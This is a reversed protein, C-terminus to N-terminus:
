RTLNGFNTRFKLVNEKIESNKVCSQQCMAEAFHPDGLFATSGTTGGPFQVAASALAKLARPSPFQKNEFVSLDKRSLVVQKGKDFYVLQFHKESPEYSYGNSQLSAKFRVPDDILYFSFNSKLKGLLM